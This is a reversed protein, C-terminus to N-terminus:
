TQKGRKTKPAPAPKKSPTKKRSSPAKAQRKETSGQRLSTEYCSIYKQAPWRHVLEGILELPVNEIKQFRVCCKGANWPHGAAVWAQQFRDAEAADAYIPMLYLSLHNKQSALHFVPLPQRPDVHYGAPYVRLPVVYGIMGYQMVEELDGDLHECIVNRIAEIAKRREAPLSALYEKVTKAGSQM